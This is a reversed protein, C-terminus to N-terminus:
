AQHGGIQHHRERGTAGDEFNTGRLIANQGYRKRIKLIANQLKKEAKLQQKALHEAQEVKQYNTFLSTQAYIPLKPDSNEPVLNAVDLTLKRILFKPEIIQHYLKIFGDIILNSSSTKQPLRLTGHAPKPVTRGYRDIITSSQSNVKQIKPTNERDYSVNLVLHNTVLHKELLELALSEAMEKVIVEAKQADYPCHLVQGSSISKTSSRYNKVSAITTCEYGWSHDILLEANVGFMKYLLEENTLSCRAVDGMTYMGREALRKAYGPGVRWFDTIPRHNWLKERFSIEDLEAIRVGASNPPTHKALIDMAVKCLFMNTGIGATATIKTTQFVDLIIKTVLEESSLRYMRLYDTLDCFIEDISYAYLDDPALYKLYTQYIKQSYDIYYQMRPTAIIFDLELNPNKALEDANSSNGTFQHNPANQRRQYNIQKVKAIVEFLRARGSIGYAKLSPSVALCITKETRAADAVVLHTKMPDLEREACEVSAYFSKLDIAAYTRPTSNKPSSHNNNAGSHTHIM